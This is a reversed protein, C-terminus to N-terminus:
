PEYQALQPSVYYTWVVRRLMRVREQGERGPFAVDPVYSEIIEYDDAFLATLTLDISGGRM